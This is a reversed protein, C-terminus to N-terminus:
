NQFLVQYILYSSSNSTLFFFFFAGHGDKYFVRTLYIGTVKIFLCLSFSPQALSLNIKVCNVIFRTLNHVNRSDPDDIKCNIEEEGGRGKGKM